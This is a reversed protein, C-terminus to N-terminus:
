DLYEVTLIEGCNSCPPDVNYEIYIEDADFYSGCETCRFGHDTGYINDVEKFQDEGYNGTIYRDLDSANITTHYDSM